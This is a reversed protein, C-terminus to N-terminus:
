ETDAYDDIEADAPEAMALVRGLTKHTAEYVIWEEDLANFRSGTVLSGNELDIKLRGGAVRKIQGQCPKGDVTITGHMWGNDTM